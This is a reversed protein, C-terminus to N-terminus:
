RECNKYATKKISLNWSSRDKMLPVKGGKVLGSCDVVAEAASWCSMLLLRIVEGAAPVKSVLAMSAMATKLEESKDPSAYLYILNLFTRLTCIATVADSLNERDSSKGYLIYEYEYKLVTNKMKERMTSFKDGIYLDLLLQEGQDQVGNRIQNMIGQNKMYGVMNKYDEFDEMLAAGLTSSTHWSCSSTDITRGSIKQGPMVLYLIGSKLWAAIGKRPDTMTPTEQEPEDVESEGNDMESEAQDMAEGNAELGDMYDQTKEDVGTNKLSNVLEQLSDIGKSVTMLKEYAAAQKKLSKWNNDRISQINKIGNMKVQGYMNMARRNNGENELNLKLYKQFLELNENNKGTDVALLDYQEALPRVYGAFVMEAALNADRESMTGIVYVRSSELLVLLLSVLLMFVLSLYVTIVGRRLMM